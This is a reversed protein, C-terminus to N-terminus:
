IPHVPEADDRRGRAVRIVIIAAATAPVALLMGVPGFLLGGVIPALISLLPNVGAKGAARPSLVFADFLQIVLWGGAVWALGAWEENLSWRAALGLGLAFVPGVLPVLNLAGCAFGTVLWWRVGALAMVVGYLCAIVVANLIQAKLWAGLTRFIDRAISMRELKRFVKDLQQAPKADGAM